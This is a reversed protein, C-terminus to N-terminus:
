HICSTKWSDQSDKSHIARRNAYEKGKICNSCPDAQKRARNIAVWLWIYVSGVKLVTEDVIFESIMKSKSLLKQPRYKQIWDRISTHSRRVFRSLAKATKRLSLGDFYLNIAYNIDEIRTRNRTQHIM